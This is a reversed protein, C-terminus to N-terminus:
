LEKEMYITTTVPSDYYNPIEHFGYKEYMKVAEKLFPLTDLLFSQYGITRADQMIKDMLLTAIHQGRYQTRVYLRKGECRATDYRHFAACGAPSGDVYAIYLRGDPMGYKDHLHDIEEDYNQMKLSAAFTADNAVLMETYETFLMKLDDKKDYGLIIDVSMHMRKKQQITTVCVAIRCENELFM